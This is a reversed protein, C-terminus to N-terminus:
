LSKNDKDPNPAPVAHCRYCSLSVVLFPGKLLSFSLALDISWGAHSVDAACSIWASSWIM